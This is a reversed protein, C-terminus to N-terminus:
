WGQARRSGRSLVGISLVGMCRSRRQSGNPNAPMTASPRPMPKAVPSVFTDADGVVVVELVSGGVVLVVAVVVEVVVLVVTVVVVAAGVVVSGAM